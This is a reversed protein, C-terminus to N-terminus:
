KRAALRSVSTGRTHAEAVSRAQSGGHRRGISLRPEPQRTMTELCDPEGCAIARQRQAYDRHHADRAPRAAHRGGEGRERENPRDDTAM